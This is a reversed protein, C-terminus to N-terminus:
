PASSSVSSPAVIRSNHAVEPTQVDIARMQNPQEKAQGQEGNTVRDNWFDLLALHHILRRTWVLSSKNGTGLHKSVSEVHTINRHCKSCTVSSIRWVLFGLDTKTSTFPRDSSYSTSLTQSNLEELFLIDVTTLPGSLRMLSYVLPASVTM